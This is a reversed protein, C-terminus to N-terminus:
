PIHTRDFSAGFKLFYYIVLPVVHLLGSLAVLAIRTRFFRAAVLLLLLSAVIGEFIMGAFIQLTFAYLVILLFIALPFIEIM